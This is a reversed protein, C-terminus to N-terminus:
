GIGQIRGQLHFQDAQLRRKFTPVVFIYNTGRSEQVNYITTICGLSLKVTPISQRNPNLTCDILLRVLSTWTVSLPFANVYRILAALPAARCAIGARSAIQREGAKWIATETVDYISTTVYDLV